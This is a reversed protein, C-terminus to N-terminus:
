DKGRRIQKAMDSLGKLARTAKSRTSQQNVLEELHEFDFSPQWAAERLADEVLSPDEFDLCLDVLTREPKTVPLGHLWTIDAQNVVRTTFRVNPCRSRIRQPAYIYYPTLWFDGIGLINAATTGGVVIGDWENMREHTFKSPRTLKWIAVLEDSESSPNGSLRYAGHLIREARGTEAAQSLAKPTIGLRKAQVTTFIGESASLENIISIYDNRTM